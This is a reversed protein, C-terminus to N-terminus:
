RPPRLWPATPSLTSMAKAPFATVAPRHTVTHSTPRLVVVLAFTLITVGMVALARAVDITREVSVPAFSPGISTHTLDDTAHM